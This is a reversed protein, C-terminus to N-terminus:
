IAKDIISRCITHMEHVIENVSPINLIKGLPIYFDLTEQAIKKQKDFLHFGITQLNHLRDSLKVMVVRIDKYDSIKQKNETETLKIKKSTICDINTVKDVIYAVEKGYQYAIQYLCLPTDEITDHLLAAIIADPDSTMKLLITAVVLPHTYFLEGSKRFQGRHIQKIQHIAKQVITV